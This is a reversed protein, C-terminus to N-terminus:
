KTLYTYEDAYVDMGQITEDNKKQMYYTLMELPVRYTNVGSLPVYKWSTRNLVVWTSSNCLHVTKYVIGYHLGVIYRYMNRYM